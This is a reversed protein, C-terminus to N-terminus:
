RENDTKMKMTRPSDDSECCCPEIGTASAVPSKRKRALSSKPSPCFFLSHFPPFAPSLSFFSHSLSDTDHFTGFILYLTPLICAFAIPLYVKEVIMPLNVNRPWESLRIAEYGTFLYSVVVNHWHSTRPFKTQIGSPTNCKLVYNYFHQFYLFVVQCFPSSRSVNLLWEWVSVILM